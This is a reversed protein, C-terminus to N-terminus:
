PTICFLVVRSHFLILLSNINFLYYSIAKALRDIHLHSRGDAAILFLDVSLHSTGALLSLGSVTILTHYCVRDEGWNQQLEM